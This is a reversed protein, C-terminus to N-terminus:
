LILRIVYKAQAYGWCPPPPTIILNLAVLYQGGKWSILKFQAVASLMSTMFRFKETPTVYTKWKLQGM